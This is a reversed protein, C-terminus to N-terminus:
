GVAVLLNPVVFSPSCARQQSALVQPCWFHPPPRQLRGATVWTSPRHAQQCCSSVRGWPQCPWCGSYGTSLRDTTPQRRQEVRDALDPRRQCAPHRHHRRRRPPRASPRPVRVCGAAPGAREVRAGLVPASTSRSQVPTSARRRNSRQVLLLSSQVAAAASGSTVEPVPVSNISNVRRCCLSM